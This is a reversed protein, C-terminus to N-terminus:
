SNLGFCYFFYQRYLNCAIKVENGSLHVLGMSHLKYAQMPELSLKDTTMVVKKLADALESHKQIMNWYHRLHHRYIGAETAATQLIQGLTLNKTTKLHSFAQELLHPHGGVVDVLQKIDSLEWKLGHHNALGHVQEVTFMPLEVSKGVTFPSENLNLPVYVETSHAVVLRLKGWVARTKAEEHWARLLGLFESAVETHPFFRETEDLCLILPNDASALLYKEFYTTCDVKSTSFQENWYDGLRNPLGLIRGVSVCFWQLFEKLNCFHSSDAYHFNLLATRYGKKKLQPLIKAMLSTKGTWGAGKIRLLAGPQTLTEICICEIPPREVYIFNVEEQMYEEKTNENNEESNNGDNDIRSFDAIEKWDLELRECIDQFNDIYIPKGNFFSSVTTLSLGLEEALDKQRAYGQRRLAAKVRTIYKGQIKISRQM